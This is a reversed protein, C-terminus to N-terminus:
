DFHMGEYGSFTCLAQEVQAMAFWFGGVVGVAPLVILLAIFLATLNM